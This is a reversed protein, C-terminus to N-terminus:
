GGDGRDGGENGDADGDEGYGDNGGNARHLRIFLGVEQFLSFRHLEGNSLLTFVLGKSTHKPISPGVAHFANKARQLTHSNM